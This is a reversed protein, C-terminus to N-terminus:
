KLLCIRKFNRVCLNPLRGGGRRSFKLKERSHPKQSKLPPVEGSRTFRGINAVRMIRGIVLFKLGAFSLVLCAVEQKCVPRVGM